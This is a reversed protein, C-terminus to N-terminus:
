LGQRRVGDNRRAQERLERLMNRRRGAAAAARGGNQLGVRVGRGLSAPVHAVRHRRELDVRVRKKHAVGGGFIGGRARRRWVVCEAQRTRRRRARLRAGDRDADDLPRGLTLHGRRGRRVRRQQGATFSREVARAREGDAIRRRHVARARAASVAGRQEHAELSQQGRERELRRRQVREGDEAAREGGRQALGGRAGLQAGPEESHILRAPQQQQALRLVRRRRGVRAECRRLAEGEGGGAMAKM